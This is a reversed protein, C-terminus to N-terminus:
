SGSVPGSPSGPADSSPKTPDDDSAEPTRSDGGGPSGGVTTSRSSGLPAKPAKWKGQARMSDPLLEEVKGLFTDADVLGAELLGGPVERVDKGPRYLSLWQDWREGAKLVKYFMRGPEDEFIVDWVYAAISVPALVLDGLGDLVLKLQFLLLDRFAIRRTIPSIEPAEPAKGAAHPETGGPPATGEGNM